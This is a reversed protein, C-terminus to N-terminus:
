QIPTGCQTPDPGDPFPLDPVDRDRALIAQADHTIVQETTSAAVQGCAALLLALAM